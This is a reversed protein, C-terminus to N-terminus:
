VANNQRGGRGLFLLKVVQLLFIQVISLIFYFPQISNIKQVNYCSFQRVLIIEQVGEFKTLSFGTQLFALRGNMSQLPIKM